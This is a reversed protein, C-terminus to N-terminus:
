PDIRHKFGFNQNRRARELAGLIQTRTEAPAIVDDILGMGAAAYASSEKEIRRRIDDRAREPDAAQAIERGHVLEIGAEPGMVDFRATPWAVLLDPDVARGGLAIYALGIAKRLVVTVFPVNAGIISNLLRGTLSVMRQREIEPGVLFGPCDMLSIIPIHFADCLDIFQRAKGAGKEDITGAQRMPQNALIGVPYGDMRAFCTILSRAYDRKLEFFDGGDVLLEILQHMDYARRHNEPVLATIAEAGDESDVPAALPTARPPPENCSSPLYSLFRRISAMCDAESNALYGAQGTEKASIEGGGIEETSTDLGIGVKVVPPGSMGLFGTGAVIPVFDSQAATFSPGGFCAGLAAGVQPIRGSMRYHDAFRYGLGAATAGYTEQVRAAGAEMLAIFPKEHKLALDRVRKNKVEAVRGRTGALVTGDDATIYVTRGDIKGSGALMGDAPTRDKLDAHQSHALMGIEVFSGPDLLLDLRERATLKGRAHLKDVSAAGGMEAARQRRTDLSKRPEDDM